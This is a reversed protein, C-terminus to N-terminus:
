QLPDILCTNKMFHHNLLMLTPFLNLRQTRLSFTIYLVPYRKVLYQMLERLVM